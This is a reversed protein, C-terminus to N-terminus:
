GIVREALGFALTMGAGGLANVVRVGREPEFDTHWGGGTRKRYRGIWRRAPRLDAGSILSGARALIKTDIAENRPAGARHGYAHSDGIVLSGDPRQTIMVHIGHQDLAPDEDAIRQRLGEISPCRAFSEYHRLSLGGALHSGLRWSPPQPATALMQLSCPTVLGDAHAEPYLAEGEGGCVIIREAALARGATTTAVRDRISVVGQDFFLDVDPQRGLWTALKGMAEPPDVALDLPSFMAGRLSARNLHPEFAVAASADLLECDLGGGEGAAFEALVAAEDDAYAAHLSGRPDCWFGAEEAVALWTTRSRLALDRREDAPQGVIWIMGFNQVSAGACAPNREMIATRLGRRLAAVAHALGVIGAGVILVDFDSRM